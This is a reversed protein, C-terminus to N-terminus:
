LNSMNFLMLGYEDDLVFLKDDILKVGVIYIDWM